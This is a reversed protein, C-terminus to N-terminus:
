DYPKQMQMDLINVMSLKKLGCLLSVLEQMCLTDWM